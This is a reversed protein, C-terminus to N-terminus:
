EERFRVLRVPTEGSTELILYDRTGPIKAIARPARLMPSAIVDLLRYRRADWVVLRGLGPQCVFLRRDSDLFLSGFGTDGVNVDTLQQYGATNRFISGAWHHVKGDARCSVFVSTGEPTVALGYSRHTGSFPSGALEVGEPSLVHWHTNEASLIFFRSSGDVVVSGPFFNLALGSLAEGAETFGFLWGKGNFSTVWITGSSDQCVGLSSHIKHWTGKFDRGQRIPSFRAPQGTSDLVVVRDGAPIWVQKQRDVLLHRAGQVPVGWFSEFHFRSSKKLLPVNFERLLVKRPGEKKYLGFNIIGPLPGLSVERATVLQNPHGTRPILPSSFRTADRRMRNWSLVLRANSPVAGAFEVAIKQDSVLPFDGQAFILREPYPLEANASNEPSRSGTKHSFFRESLQGALEGPAGEPFLAKYSFFSFGPLRCKQILHLEQWFVSSSRTLIGPLVARRPYTRYFTLWHHFQLTDSTYTMPVVWDLGENWVWCRSDQFFARTGIERDGFIAASLSLKPHTRKLYTRCSRLFSSIQGRRFNDWDRPTANRFDFIKQYVPNRSDRVFDGPGPYRFYDFHIGDLNYRDSLEFVLARLHNQVEPLVPNLWSYGPRLAATSDAQWSLFWSKHRNWLQISDTPPRTGRWGPYVNVWAHLQLNSLHARAIAYALPDWSSDTEQLSKDLPEFDSHYYVTGNGRIQFFIVTFGAWEANKVITAIDEPSRYDWRTVWLARVPCNSTDSVMEQSPQAFVLGSFVLWGMWLFFVKRM